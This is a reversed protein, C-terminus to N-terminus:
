HKQQQYTTYEQRIVQPDLSLSPSTTTNYQIPANSTSYFSQNLPAASLTAFLRAQSSNYEALTPSHPMQSCPMHSTMITQETTQKPHGPSPETNQGSSSPPQSSLWSTPALTPTRPLFSTADECPLSPSRSQGLASDHHDQGEAVGDLDSAPSDNDPQSSGVVENFTEFERSGDDKPELLDLAALIDHVSPYRNLGEPPRSGWAGAKRAQQYLEQVCSVLQAHQIELMETYGPPFNRRRLRHSKACCIVNDTTCGSCPSSGDCKTKKIRCRDCAQRVRKRIKVAPGTSTSTPSAPERTLRSIAPSMNTSSQDPNFASCLAAPLSPLLHISTSMSLVWQLSHRETHLSSCPYASVADCARLRNAVHCCAQSGGSLATIQLGGARCYYPPLKRSAISWVVWPRRLCWRRLSIATQHLLARPRDFLQDGPQYSNYRDVIM